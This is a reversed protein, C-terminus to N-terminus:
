SGECQLVDSANEEQEQLESVAFQIRALKPARKTKRGFYINGCGTSLLEVSVEDLEDLMRFKMKNPRGQFCVIVRQNTICYLTKTKLRAVVRIPDWILYVGVLAIVISFVTAQTGDVGLASFSAMYWACFGFLVVAIVWRAIIGFTYPAELLKINSPTGSWLIHEGSQLNSKVYQEM